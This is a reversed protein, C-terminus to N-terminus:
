RMVSQIMGRSVSGPPLFVLVNDGERIKKRSTCTVPRGGLIVTAGNANVASVKGAKTRGQGVAETDYRNKAQAGMTLLMLYHPPDVDQPRYTIRTKLEKFDHSVAVVGGDPFVRTDLPITITEVIGRSSQKVNLINLAMRQAVNRAEQDSIDQDLYVEKETWIPGTGAIGIVPEAAPGGVTRGDMAQCQQYRPCGLYGPTANGNAYPCQTREGNSEGVGDPAIPARPYATVPDSSGGDGSSPTVSAEEVPVLVGCLGGICFFPCHDGPSSEIYREGEGGLGAGRIRRGPQDLTGVETSLMSRGPVQTVRLTGNQPLSRLYAQALQSNGDAPLLMDGYLGRAMMDALGNDDTEREIRTACEGEGDFIEDIQRVRERKILTTFQYGPVGILCELGGAAFTADNNESDKVVDVSGVERQEYEEVKETLGCYGGERDWVWSRTERRNFPPVFSLTAAAPDTIHTETIESLIHKLNTDYTRTVDHENQAVLTHSETNGTKENYTEMTRETEEVSHSEMLAYLWIRHEQDGVVIVSTRVDYDYTAVIRRWMGYLNITAVYECIMDIPRLITYRWIVVGGPIASVGSRTETWLRGPPTQLNGGTGNNFPDDNLSPTVKGRRNLTVVVGTAYGDLDLARSEVYDLKLDHHPYHRCSRPPAVILTGRPSIYAMSGGLLALDMIVNAATQGSVMDRACIPLDAAVTIDSNLGNKQSIERIVSGLQEGRIEHPLPPTRMLRFGADYGSLEWLSGGGAADGKRNANSIIGNEMIGPITWEQGLEPPSACVVTAAWTGILNRAQRNYTCSVYGTPLAPTQVERM